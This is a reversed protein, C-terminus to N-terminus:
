NYFYESNIKDFITFDNGYTISSGGELTDNRSLRDLNYINNVDFRIFDDSMNKSNDPGLKLSLKPKLVKSLENSEKILPLSSNFQFIGSLGSDSGDKYSSSNQSDTNANKILFNM